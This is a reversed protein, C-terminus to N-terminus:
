FWLVYGGVNTLKYKDIYLDQHLDSYSYYSYEGMTMVSKIVFPSQELVM